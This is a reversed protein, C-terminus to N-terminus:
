DDKAFAYPDVVAVRENTPVVGVIPVNGLITALFQGNLSCAALAIWHSAEEGLGHVRDLSRVVDAAAGGGPVILIPSDIGALLAKLRPALDALDYLSGGVKVVVPTM